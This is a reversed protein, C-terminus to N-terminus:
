GVRTLNWSSYAEWGGIVLLVGGIGGGKGFIDSQRAGFGGPGDGRMTLYSLHRVSKASPVSTGRVTPGGGYLIMPLTGKEVLPAHDGSSLSSDDRYESRRGRDQVYGRNQKKGTRSGVSM